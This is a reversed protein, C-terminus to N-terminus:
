TRTAHRQAALQKGKGDKSCVPLSGKHQLAALAQLVDPERLFAALFHPAADTASSAGDYTMNM